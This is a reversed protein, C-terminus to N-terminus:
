APVGMRQVEQVPQEYLGVVEDVPGFAKLQGNDLWMAKNCMRRILQNSHTALVVIRSQGILKNMRAEAKKIFAADGASLHEDILLVEPEVATAIAFALRTRMGASYTHVPIALFEGLESFAAIEESKRAIEAKSMGLLMGCLHINELGTSDDHMGLGLGLLSAMRGEIMVEGSTPVYVGALVCLLTSKGAGNAGILGIRDGDRLDFTLNRLARVVTRDRNDRNIRGEQVATILSKRLSRSDAGFIPFDVWINRAQIYAM